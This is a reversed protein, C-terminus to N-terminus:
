SDRKAKANSTDISAFFKTFISNCHSIFRIDFVLAGSSILCYQKFPNGLYIFLYVNDRKLSKILHLFLPDMKQIM